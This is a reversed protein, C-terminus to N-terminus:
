RGEWKTLEDIRYESVSKWRADEAAVRYSQVAEKNKGLGRLADGKEILAPAWNRKLKLAKTAASLASSFNEQGNYAQSLRYYTKYSTASGTLGKLLSITADYDEQDIYIKALLEYARLYGKDVEIAKILNQIALKENKQSDYVQGLVYYAREYNSNISISMKLAEIAKNNNGMSYYLSGLGYWGKYHTPDSTVADRYFNESAKLDGDLKAILALQYFGSAFSPDVAVAIAYQEKASVYDKRKYFKHGESYHKNRVMEIAKAFKPEERDFAMASKFEAAAEIPSEQRFLVMGKSYYAEGKVKGWVDQKSADMQAIANSYKRLSEDYENRELSRRGDALLINVKELEKWEVEITKYEDEDIALKMAAKYAADATPIDFDKIAARAKKVQAEPNQGLLFLSSLLLLIAITSLKKM